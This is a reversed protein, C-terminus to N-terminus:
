LKQVDWVLASTVALEGILKCLDEWLVGAALVDIIVSITGFAVGVIILWRAQRDSHKWMIWAVVLGLCAAVIVPLEGLWYTPKSTAEYAVFVLQMKLSEHIMFHEDVALLIFFLSFVIWPYWGRKSAIIATTTASIILLVESVWAGVSNEGAIVLPFPDKTFTFAIAFVLCFFLSLIGIGIFPNRPM